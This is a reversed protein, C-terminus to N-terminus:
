RTRYSSLSVGGGGGSSSSSTAGGGGTGSSSLAARYNKEVREVLADVAQVFLDSRIPMELEYFPDKLVCDVYLVYIERLLADMQQSLLALAAASSSSSPPPRGATVVFKIGTRTQLCRLV